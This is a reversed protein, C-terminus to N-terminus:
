GFVVVGEKTQINAREGQESKMETKVQKIKAPVLVHTQLVPDVIQLGGPSVSRVQYCGGSVVLLCPILSNLGRPLSLHARLATHFSGATDVSTM